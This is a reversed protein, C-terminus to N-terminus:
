YLNSLQQYFGDNLKICPRKNKVYDYAQKFTMNCTKMMYYIMISASRSRGAVCHILIKKEQNDLLFKYAKECIPIINSDPTDLIDLKLYNVNPAVKYDELSVNIVCDFNKFQKVQTSMLDGIHINEIIKDFYNDCKFASTYKWIFDM